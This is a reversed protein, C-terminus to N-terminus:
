DHSDLRASRRQYRRAEALEAPTNINSFEFESGSKPSLFNANLKRSFDRLAYQREEMQRTLAPLCNRQLLFPFGPRDDTKTFVGMPSKKLTRHLQLLHSVPVFPMDCSLFIISETKLREFATWIGSLPGCHPVCDRYITRVPFGAERALNRATALLSRGGIRLRQKPEGMRTSRGGALICAWTGPQFRPNSPLSPNHLEPNM